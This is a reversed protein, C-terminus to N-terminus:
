CQSQLYRLFGMDPNESQALEETHVTDRVAPENLKAEMQTLKENLEQILKEQATIKASMEIDMKNDESMEKVKESKKASEEEKDEEEEAMKKKIAEARKLIEEDTMEKKAALEKAKQVAAAWSLNSDAKRLALASLAFESNEALLAAISDISESNEVETTEAVEEKVEEQAVVPESEEKVEEVPEEVEETKEETVETTPTTENQEAVPSEVQAEPVQTEETKNEESMNVELKTKPTIEAVPRISSSDASALESNNIYATKVAPNIVVSFNEFTFEVIKGEDEYGRVKPSIGMKAGYALKMATPKDVFVLDVLVTDGELRPNVVEGVWTLSGMAKPSDPTAVGDLHDLFLSRNEKLSWDTKNFAEVIAEQTYMFGNWVGPSMVVKNRMIYPLKVDAELDLSELQSLLEKVIPHSLIESENLIAEAM